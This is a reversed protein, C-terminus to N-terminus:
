DLDGVTVGKLSIGNDRIDKMLITMAKTNKQTEIQAKRTGDDLGRELRFAEVSGRRVAAVRGPANIDLTAKIADRASIIAQRQKRSLATEIANRQEATRAFGLLRDKEAQLAILTKVAESKTFADIEMKNKVEINAIAANQIDGALNLARNFQEQTDKTFGITEQATKIAKIQDDYKKNIQEIEAKQDGQSKLLEINLNRVIKLSSEEAKGIALARAKERAILKEKKLAEELLENMKEQLIKQKQITLLQSLNEELQGGPGVVGGAADSIVRLAKQRKIINEQERQVQKSRKIMLQFFKASDQPAAVIQDVLDKQQKRADRIFGINKKFAGGFKDQMKSIKGGTEDIRVGWGAWLSIQEGIKFAIIATAAIAAGKLLLIGAMSAKATVGIALIRTSVGTIAAYTKTLSLLAVFLANVAVIVAGVIFLLPGLAATAAAIAVVWGRTGESLRGFAEFANRIIKVINLVSPALDQGVARVVIMIQNKLVKLQNIFSKMQKNAVEETTGAANRLEKEYRRMQDSTGILAITFAQSREQFGLATLEAKKQADSMGNLRVELDEIVDALNRFEGFQDFVAVNATKFAEANALSARQMDRLVINLADGAARGKKGQDAFVALAAVGEEVDKGLNRLAAGAKNKISDAFQEVNANALTNAKVLVDSVRAMNLLNDATDKVTLGLASQADTVLDTATALDFNGATAFQVVQPLAALSQEANLGASALFFYAEALERAAFKSNGSLEEALNRLDKTMSESLDGMIALSSTMADDFDSFSKVAVIGLVTIPLTLAVTLTTGLTKASRGIALMNASAAVKFAGVAKTSRAIAAQYQADNGLINVLIDGAVAAM